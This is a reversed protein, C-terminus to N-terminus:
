EEDDEDDEGDDDCIEITPDCDGSSSAEEDFTPGATTAGEDPQAAFLDEEGSAEEEEILECRGDVIEYNIDDPCQSIDVIPCNESDFLRDFDPDEIDTPCPVCPDQDMPVTDDFVFGFECQTTPDVIPPPQGGPTGGPTTGPAPAPGPDPGPTTPPQGGGPTAGPDPPPTTTPPETPKTTNTPDTPKTTTTTGSSPEVLQCKESSTDQVGPDCKLRAPVEPTADPTFDFWNTGDDDTRIYQIMECSPHSPDEIGPPCKVGNFYIWGDERILGGFQGKKGPEWGPPLPAGTPKPPQGPDKPAPAPAPSPPTGPDTPGGPTPPPPTAPAGPGGPAAPAAPGGPATGFQNPDVGIVMAGNPLQLMTCPIQFPTPTDGPRDGPLPSRAIKLSPCILGSQGDPAVYIIDNNPATRINPVHAKPYYFWADGPLVCENGELKSPAKCTGDPGPAFRKIPSGAAPEGTGADTPGEQTGSPTTANRTTTETETPKPIFPEPGVIGPGQVTSSGGPTSTTGTANTANSTTAQTSNTQICQKLEGQKTAIQENLFEIREILDGKQGSPATQLQEQVRKLQSTLSNIEKVIPQCAAPVNIPPTTLKGRLVSLLDQNNWKHCLPGGQLPGLPALVGPQPENRLPVNCFAKFATDAKEQLGALTLITYVVSNSNPGQFMRYGHCFGKANIRNNIIDEFVKDKGRAEPGHMLVISNVNPDTNWDVTGREYPGHEAGIWINPTRCDKRIYGGGRYFKENGSEDRFVIWSHHFGTGAVRHSRLSICPYDSAEGRVCRSGPTLVEGRVQEEQGGSPATAEPSPSTTSTTTNAVSGSARTLLSPGIPAVLMAVLMGAIALIVAVTGLDDKRTSKM